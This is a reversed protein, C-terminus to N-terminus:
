VLMRSVAVSLAIREVSTSRMCFESESREQVVSLESKWSKGCSTIQIMNKVPDAAVHSSSLCYKAPWRRHIHSLRENTYQSSTSPSSLRKKHSCASYKSLHLSNHVSATSRWALISSHSMTSVQSSSQIITSVSVFIILPNFQNLPNVPLRQPIVKYGFSRWSHSFFALITVAVHSPQRKCCWYRHIM